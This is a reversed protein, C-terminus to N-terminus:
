IDLLPWTFFHCKGSAKTKWLEKAGIISCHGIFIAKYTLSTSFIGSECWKWLLKGLRDEQLFVGELRQRMHLYQMLM